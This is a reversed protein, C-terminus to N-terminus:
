GREQPENLSRAKLAAAIKTGQATLKETYNAVRPDNSARMCELVMYTLIYDHYEIPITSPSDTLVSLDSPVAIYFIQVTM